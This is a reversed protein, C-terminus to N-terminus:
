VEQHTEDQSKYKQTKQSEPKEYLLADYTNETKYRRKTPALLMSVFVSKAFKEFPINHPKYFGCLFWPFGALVGVFFAANGLINRTLFYGTIAFAAGIVGFITQRSSLPGIFKAEYKDTDKIDREIM